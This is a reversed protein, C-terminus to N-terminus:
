ISPLGGVWVAPRDFHEGCNPCPVRPLERAKQLTMKRNEGSPVGLYNESEFPDGFVGQWSCNNCSISNLSIRQKSGGIDLLVYFFFNSRAGFIGGALSLEHYGNVVPLEMLNLRKVLRDPIEIDDLDKSELITNWEDRSPFYLTQGDIVGTELEKLSIM